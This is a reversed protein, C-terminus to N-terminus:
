GSKKFGHNGPAKITSDSGETSAVRKRIPSLFRQSLLANEIALALDIQLREKLVYGIAGADFAASIIEPDSHITLFIIRANSGSQVLQRAVEIGSMEPMSVDLVVLDPAYAAAASLLAPGNSASAVVKCNQHLLVQNVEGLISGHDDAVLVRLSM